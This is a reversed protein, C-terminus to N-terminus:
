LLLSTAAAQETATDPALAFQAALMPDADTTEHFERWQTQEAGQWL